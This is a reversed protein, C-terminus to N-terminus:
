AAQEIEVDCRAALEDLLTEFPVEMGNRSWGVPVKLRGSLIYAHPRIVVSTQGHAVTAKDGHLRISKVSKYTISKVRGSTVIEFSDEHLVYESAEAQRHLLDALAGKGMGVLVGAVDRVDQGLNREGERKMLSKGQRKSKRKLDQAGIELWRIAEGPKYRVAEL